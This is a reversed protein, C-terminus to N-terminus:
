YVLLSDIQTHDIQHADWLLVHRAQLVMDPSDAVIPIFLAILILMMGNQRFIFFTAHLSYLSFHAISSAILNVSQLAFLSFVYYFFRRCLLPGIL